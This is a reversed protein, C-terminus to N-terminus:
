FGGVSEFVITLGDKSTTGPSVAAARLASEAASSSAGPHSSLYLAAGGGVHPAAMSTGSMRTTGGGLKTSLIGAGPAWLDVCPGYNSSTREGDSKNTAATTVIGNDTGAGARAPSHNCADEGENGAAVSYLVGGNASRKVADDVSRSAAGGLSMNAVAPRQANATVWDIGEIVRSKSGMGDCGLVKVGTLPAGPAVGVVASANDGASLTGAVHTGHGDCDANKGGAFNVHNVVNLDRHGADIGTDIVYVNVNSVAGGGDGARTSSTDAEVQDVGWPVRQAVASMTGDREVYDVRGDARVMELREGPITASFGKLAHRYVFGVGLGYRRAMGNASREPAPADDKLVVIYRGEQRGAESPRAEALVTGIVLLVAAAITGAFM